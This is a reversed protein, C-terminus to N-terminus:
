NNILVLINQPPYKLQMQSNKFIDNYDNNEGKVMKAAQKLLVTQYQCHMM